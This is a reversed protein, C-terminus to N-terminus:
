WPKRAPAGQAPVPKGQRAKNENNQVAQLQREVDETPKPQQPQPQQQQQNQQQQQQNQQQQQDKNLDQKDKDQDKNQNNNGGGGNNDKLKELLIQAMRLNERAQQNGPNVNLSKKYSEISKELSKRAQGRYDVSGEQPNMQGAKAAGARQISDNDYYYKGDRYHVNGLNYRADPYFLSDAPEISEFGKVAAQWHPNNKEVSDPKFAEDRENNDVLQANALASNYTAAKSTPNVELAKEYQELAKQYEGHSYYSNGKAIAVREARSSQEEVQKPQSADNASCATLSALAVIAAIIYLSTYKM